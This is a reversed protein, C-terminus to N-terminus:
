EFDPFGPFGPVSPINGSGDTLLLFDAQRSSNALYQCRQSDAEGHANIPIWGLNRSHLRSTLQCVIVIANRM